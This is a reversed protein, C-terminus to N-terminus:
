RITSPMSKREIASVTLLFVPALTICSIRRHVSADRHRSVKGCRVLFDCSLDGYRSQRGHGCRKTRHNGGELTTLRRGTSHKRESVPRRSPASMKCGKVFTHTCTVPRSRGFNRCVRCGSPPRQVASKRSSPCELRFILFIVPLDAKYGSGTM